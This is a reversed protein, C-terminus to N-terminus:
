GSDTKGSTSSICVISPIGLLIIQSFKVKTNYIYKTLTSLSVTNIRILFHHNQTKLLKILKTQMVMDFLNSKEFQFHALASLQATTKDSLIKKLAVNAVLNTIDPFCFM